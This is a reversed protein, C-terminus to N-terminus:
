RVPGRPKPRKPFLSPQEPLNQETWKVAEMVPRQSIGNQKCGRLIGHLYQESPLAPQSRYPENMTYVMAKQAPLGQGHVTIEEKKYLYPYGEYHDLNQEATEDIRWLLGDVHFGPQLLITAVGTGGTNGCFVLRYGDVRVPGVVEADPCRFAMQSLNMNSGYAFYLTESMKRVEKM